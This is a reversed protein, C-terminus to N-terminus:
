RGGVGMAHRQCFTMPIRDATLLGLRIHSNHHRPCFTRPEATSGDGGSKKKEKLTSIWMQVVVIDKHRSM